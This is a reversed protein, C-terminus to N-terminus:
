VGAYSVVLDPAVVFEIRVEVPALQRVNEEIAFRYREEIMEKAMAHRVQVTLVGDACSLAKAGDIWNRYTSGNLQIRLSGLVAVWIERWTWRGGPPKENLGDSAAAVSDTVPEAPTVPPGPPLEDLERTAVLDRAQERFADLQRHSRVRDVETRDTSGIEVAIKAQELLDDPPGDGRMMTVALGGPSRAGPGQAAWAVALAYEAGHGLLEQQADPTLHLKRIEPLIWDSTEVDVVVDETDALAERALDGSETTTSSENEAPTQTPTESPTESPCTDASEAPEPYLRKGGNGLYLRKGDKELYLRFAGKGSYTAEIVKELLAENVWYWTKRNSDTWYIVLHRVAEQWVRKYEASTQDCPLDLWQYAMLDAKKQGKTVKTGILSIAGDFERRTFALEECWSDRPQYDEHKCPEKFKYFPERGHGNWRYFIQQLLIGATVSGAMRAFAPRYSITYNDENLLNLIPNETPPSDKSGRFNKDLNTIQSGSPVSKNM